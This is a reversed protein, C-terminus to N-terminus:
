KLTELRRGASGKTVRTRGSLGPRRHLVHSPPPWAGTLVSAPDGPRVLRDRRRGGRPLLKPGDPGHLGERRLRQGPLLQGVLAQGAGAVPRATRRASRAGERPAPRNRRVGR